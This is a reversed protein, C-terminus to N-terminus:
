SAKYRGARQMTAVVPECQQVQSHGRYQKTKMAAFDSYQKESSQHHQLVNEFRESFILAIIRYPVSLLCKTDKSPNSRAFSLSHLPKV